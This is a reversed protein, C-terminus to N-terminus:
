GVYAEEEQKCRCVVIDEFHDNQQLSVQRQRCLELLAMFTVIIEIKSFCKKFLDFANVQSHISLLSLLYEIKDEVTHMEEVVRHITPSDQTYRLVNSFAKLLLNLDAKLPKSEESDDLFTDLVNKRYYVNLQEAERESLIKSLDKFRRYEVLQRVLERANLYEDIEENDDEFTPDPMLGRSKLNVLTAAMVLFDGASELDLEVLDKIYDLYHKTIEAIKIDYIDMENIKVLHLLLDFPGEFIELKIKYSM